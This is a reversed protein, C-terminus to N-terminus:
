LVCHRSASSNVLLLTFIAHAFSVISVIEAYWFYGEYDKRDVYKIHGYETENEYKRNYHEGSTVLYAGTVIFFSIVALLWLYRTFCIFTFKM